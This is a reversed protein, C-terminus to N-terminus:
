GSGDIMSSLKLFSVRKDLFDVDALGAFGSAHLPPDDLVAAIRVAVGNGIMEALDGTRVERSVHLLAAQRLRGDRRKRGHSTLTSTTCSSNFRMPKSGTFPTSRCKRSSARCDCLGIPARSSAPDCSSSKLESDSSNCSRRSSLLRTSISFHASQKSRIFWAQCDPSAAAIASTIVRLTRSYGCSLGNIVLSSSSRLVAM